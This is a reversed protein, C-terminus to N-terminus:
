SFVLAICYNSFTVTTYCLFGAILEEAENSVEGGGLFFCQLDFRMGLDGVTV